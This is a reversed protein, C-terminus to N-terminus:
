VDEFRPDDKAPITRSNNSAAFFRGPGGQGAAKQAEAEAEAPATPAGDKAAVKKKGFSLVKGPKGEGQGGSGSNGSPAHTSSSNADTKEESGTVLVFLDRVVNRLQGAQSSLQEASSAARQAVATNQQTVQDLQNIAKNIESVGQSQEQAAITIEGVMGDVEHVTTLIGSLAEGCKQAVRTGSELKVRSEVALSEVKSKTERVIGEVKQISSDLMGSIEKAANGSMQALNGVEEAVVAFGKGHEGARAAEVSANFSLLKTQFVIDNIIKTKTGIESIVRAIETIKQNGDEVQTMIANNSASIEAISRIVEQVAEQGREAAERSQQSVKQSQSANDASKKVMSSVEDISAATEQIASAQEVSADSLEKSSGSISNAASSVENSGMSLTHALAMLKRSLSSSFLFSLLSGLGLMVALVVYFINRASDLAAMAENRAVRVVVGWGISEVFKAGTVPSYGAVQEVKSRTDVMLGSGSKGAALDRAATNGADALNYKLLTEWDYSSEDLKTPNASSYEFLVVGTKSLMTLKSHPYGSKALGAFLEKFAVEFWRSGARNTVVGIVNGKSDKVASSFSTGLKSGGYVASIYPDVQVDEALTGLFNKEKDDTTKGQMVAKFWPASAYNKEYLQKSPIEGGGVNRDNVAVLRGNADVVMIVDYIGYLAVYANLTDVITRQNSSQISPNLAFAQVDGYREYFQASVSDSLTRAYAEFSSLQAKQQTQLIYRLIGWSAGGLSITTGLTLVLLKFKLTRGNLYTM